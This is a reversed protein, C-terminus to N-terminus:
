GISGTEATTAKHFSKITQNLQNTLHLNTHRAKIAPVEKKRITATIIGQRETPIAVM